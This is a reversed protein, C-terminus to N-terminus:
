GDWGAEVIREQFREFWDGMEVRPEAQIGASGLRAAMTEAVRAVGEERGPLLRAQGVGDQFLIWPMPALGFLGAVFRLGPSRINAVPVECYVIWTGAGEDYSLTDFKSYVEDLHAEMEAKGGPTVNRIIYHLQYSHEGAHVEPRGLLDVTCGPDRMTLQGILTERSPIDVVVFARTVHIPQSGGWLVM